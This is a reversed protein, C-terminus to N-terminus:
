RVAQVKCFCTTPNAMPALEPNVIVALVAALCLADGPWYDDAVCVPDAQEAAQHSSRWSKRCKLVSRMM